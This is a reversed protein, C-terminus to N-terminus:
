RGPLAASKRLRFVLVFGVFVALLASVGPVQLVAGKSAVAFLAIVTLGHVGMAYLANRVIARPGSTRAGVFGAAGSLILFLLASSWLVLAIGGRDEPRAGGAQLM